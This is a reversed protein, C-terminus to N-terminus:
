CDYLVFVVHELGRKNVLIFLIEVGWHCFGTTVTTDQTSFKMNYVKLPQSSGESLEPLSMSDGTVGEGTTVPPASFAAHM